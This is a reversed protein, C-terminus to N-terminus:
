RRWDLLFLFGYLIMFVGVALNWPGIVPIPYAFSTLMTIVTVALGLIMLGFILRLMGPDYSSKGTRDTDGNEDVSNDVTDGNGDVNGDHDDNDDTDVTVVGGMERVLALIDADAHALADGDETDADDRNDNVADVTSMTVSMGDIIDSVEDMVVSPESTSADTQEEPDEVTSSDNETQESMITFIHRARHSLQAPNIAIHVPHCWLMIGVIDVADCTRNDGM